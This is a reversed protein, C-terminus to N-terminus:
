SIFFMPPFAMSNMGSPKNGHDDMISNGEDVPEMVDEVAQEETESDMNGNPPTHKDVPPTPSSEPINRDEDCDDDQVIDEKSIVGAHLQQLAVHPHLQQSNSLTVMKTHFSNLYKHLVNHWMCSSAQIGLSQALNRGWKLRTELPPIRFEM